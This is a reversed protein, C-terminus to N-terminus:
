LIEDVWAYKPWLCCPQQSKSAELRGRPKILSGTELFHPLPQCLLVDGRAETHMRMCVCTHMYWLCMSVCMYM